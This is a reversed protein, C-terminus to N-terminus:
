RCAVLEALAGLLPGACMACCHMHTDVGARKRFCHCIVRSLADGHPVPLKTHILKLAGSKTMGGKTHIGHMHTFTHQHAHDHTADLAPERPVITASCSEFVNFPPCM